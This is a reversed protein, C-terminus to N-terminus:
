KMVMSEDDHFSISVMHPATQKARKYTVSSIPLTTGTYYYNKIFICCGLERKEEKIAIQRKM